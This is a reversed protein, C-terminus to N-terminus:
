EVYGGTKKALHTHPALLLNKPLNENTTVILFL